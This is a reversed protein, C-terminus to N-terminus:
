QGVKKAERMQAFLALVAEQYAKVEATAGTFYTQADARAEEPFVIVLRGPNDGPHIDVIKWGRGLLLGAIGINTTEYTEQPAYYRQM